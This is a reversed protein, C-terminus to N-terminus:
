VQGIPRNYSGTIYITDGVVTGAGMDGQRPMSTGIAWTDTFPNYM